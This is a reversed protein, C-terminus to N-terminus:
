RVSTSVSASGDSRQPTDDMRGEAVRQAGGAVAGHAGVGDAEVDVRRRQSAKVIAPPAAPEGARQVREGLARDIRRQQRDRHRDIEEGHQQGAADLGDGAREDPEATNWEMLSM